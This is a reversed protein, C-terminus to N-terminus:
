QVADVRGLATLAVLPNWYDRYSKIKDGDPTIIAVYRMTFFRGTAVATAQATFEVIRTEGARYVHDCHVQRLTVHNPYDKMYAAIAERGALRAPYGPPAYPFEMIGDPTFLAAWPATDQAVLSNLAQFLRTILPDDAATSLTVPM